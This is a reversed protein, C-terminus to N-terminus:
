TPVFMCTQSPSTETWDPGTRDGTLSFFLRFPHHDIRIRICIGLDHREQFNSERQKQRQRAKGEGAQESSHRIWSLPPASAHKIPDFHPPPFSFEYVCSPHASAKTLMTKGEYCVCTMIVRTYEPHSALSTLLDALSESSVVSYWPVSHVLVLEFKLDVWNNMRNGCGRM